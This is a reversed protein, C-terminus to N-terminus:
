EQVVAVDNESLGSIVESIRGDSFGTVVKTKVLEGDENKINVYQEGNELLIAKNSITLIDQKEKLIITAFAKMGPLVMQETQDLTITVPYDGNDNAVLLRETVTGTFKQEAFADVFINVKQGPAVSGIDVASVPVTITIESVKGITCVAKGDAVMDGTKYNLSTVIGDMQAYLVPNNQLEILKNLKDQAYGTNRNAKSINENIAKLEENVKYDSFTNDKGQSEVAQNYQKETRQIEELKLSFDTYAKELSVEATAKENKLQELEAVSKDKLLTDIEQQWTTNQNQLKTIELRILTAEESGDDIYNLNVQLNKLEKKREALKDKLQLLEKKYSLEDIKEIKSKATDKLLQIQSNLIEKEEENETQEVLKLLEDIQKNIDLIENNLNQISIQNKNALVEKDSILDSIGQIEFQVDLIRSNLYKRDSSGDDIKLLKENLEGIKIINANIKSQLSEVINATDKVLSSLDSIQKTLESIKVEYDHIAKELRSKESYLMSLKMDYDQQISNIGDQKNKDNQKLLVDKASSALLLAAKADSLEDKAAKILEELNEQSISALKDGKKVESGLKVFVNDIVTNEAFTHLNPLTNIQGSTEVGVTINDKKAMYERERVTTQTEQPTFLLFIGIGIIGSIAIIGALIKKNKFIKIKM